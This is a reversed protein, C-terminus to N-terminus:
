GVPTRMMEGETITLIKGKNWLHSGLLTMSQADGIISFRKDATKIKQAVPRGSKDRYTAVQVPQGKYTTVGYGFKRCTEESLGRAPIAQFTTQLLDQRKAQDQDALPGAAPADGQSGPEAPTHTQCSFLLLTRTMM